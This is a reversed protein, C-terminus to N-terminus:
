TYQLEFALVQDFPRCAWHAASPFRRHVMPESEARHGIGDEGYKQVTVAGPEFLPARSCLSVKTEHAIGDEVNFSFKNRKAGEPM